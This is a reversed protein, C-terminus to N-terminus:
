VQPDSSNMAQQTLEDLDASSNGTTQADFDALLAEARAADSQAVLIDGWAGEGVSFAGEYAGTVQEGIVAYIGEGELAGRVIEAQIADAPRFVVVLPSADDNKSVPQDVPIDM